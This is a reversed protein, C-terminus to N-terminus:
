WPLDEGFTVTIPDTKTTEKKYPPQVSVSFYKKGSKATKLWLSLDFKEGTPTLISGRYDPHSEKTKNENKFISGTGNKQEFDSM